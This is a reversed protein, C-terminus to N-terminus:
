FFAVFRELHNLYVLGQNMFTRDVTISKRIRTETTTQQQTYQIAEGFQVLCSVNKSLKVCFLVYNSTSNLINKFKSIILLELLSSAYRNGQM